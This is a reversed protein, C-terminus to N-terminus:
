GQAIGQGSRRDAPDAQVQPLGPDAMLENDQGAVFNRVPRPPQKENKCDADPPITNFNRPDVQVMELRINGGCNGIITAEECIRDRVEEYSPIGGTSLRIERTVVDVGRELMAHRLNLYAIEIGTVLLFVFMTFFFLFEITMGGEEDRRFRRTQRALLHTMPDVEPQQNPARHRPVDRHDRHGQVDFYHSPSSACKKLAKKGGSPAEFAIAFIVIGEDKAATCIDDLRDDAQDGNVISEYAYYANYYDSYSVYGDYYARKYFSDAVEYVSLRAYLEVNSLRRANSGGDPGTRYRSNSNYNSYREWFFTDGYYSSRVRMSYRDDGYSSTGRDDVWIDSMGSKFQSKLDYQTTNEGDTMVVIFKIAEADGYSAPRTDVAAVAQGNDVM